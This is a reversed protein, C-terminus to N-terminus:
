PEIEVVFFTLSVPGDSDARILRVNNSATLELRLSAEDIEQENIEGSGQGNLLQTSAFVVTRTTDVPAIAVNMTTTGGNLTASLKQVNARNGFDIREWALQDVPDAVCGGDTGAGRTFAVSSNTPLDGRLLLSCQGGVLTGLSTRAQTLLATHISSAALGSVTLGSMGAAFGADIIDRTVTVGSLDVVQVAYDGCGDAEFYATTPSTLRVTFSEDDDFSTGGNESTALLFTSSPNVATAWSLTAAMSVPCAGLLQNVTLGQPLEVTQWHVTTPGIGRGRHCRVTDADLLWCRSMLVGSSSNNVSAASLLFTHGLSTQAPAILCEMEFDPTVGGDALAVPDFDCTGRRVVPRPTFSQQAAGFPATATITLLAGTVPKVYFTADTGGAPITATASSTTCAADSYFRAGGTVSVTLGVSTASAVPAPAAGIRAQVTATLCMGALLPSPPTTTFDLSTPPTVAGGATGGGATAGGATGGGASAGGATGGGAPAGGAAGGGATAGGADGGATSGGALGNGGASGGATSGRPVCERGVCAFGDTCQDDGDCAFRRDGVRSSCECAGLTLLTVVLAARM